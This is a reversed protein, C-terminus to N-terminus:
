MKKYTFANKCGTKYAILNATDPFQMDATVTACILLEIEEPATGTKALLGEVARAGLDSTAKGEEKVIHRKQIGTRSRIWEDNTDVMEELDKNTLTNPPVYGQIGTIAARINTM